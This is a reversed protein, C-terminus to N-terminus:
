SFLQHPLLRAGGGQGGRGAALTPSRPPSVWPRLARGRQKVAAPARRETGLPRPRAVGRGVCTEEKGILCRPRILPASM